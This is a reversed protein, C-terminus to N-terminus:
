GYSRDNELLPRCQLVPVTASLHPRLQPPLTLKLRELLLQVGAGPQTHRLLTLTRGDSTPFVAPNKGRICAFARSHIGPFLPQYDREPKISERENANM